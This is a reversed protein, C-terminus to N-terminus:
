DKKLVLSAFNYGYVYDGPRSYDYAGGLPALDSGRAIQIFAEMMEENYTRIHGQIVSKGTPSFDVTIVVIKKAYELLKLFMAHDDLVHELVSICTVADFRKRTAWDEFHIQNYALEKGLVARQQSLLWENDAPDVQLVDMGVWTLIPALLSGGGGIDLVTNVGNEQLAKYTVAYEWQRHPHEARSPLGWLNQVHQAYHGLEVYDSPDLAKSLIM